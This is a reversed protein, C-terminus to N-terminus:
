NAKHTALKNDENSKPNTLTQAIISIHEQNLAAYFGKFYSPHYVRFGVTDGNISKLAAFSRYSINEVPVLKYQPFNFLIDQDREPGTFFLMLDPKIIAIEHPIVNFFAREIKRVESSVGVEEKARGIKNINNWLTAVSKEELEKTQKLKKLTYKIGSRFSSRASLKGKAKDFYKMDNIHFYRQYGTISNDIDAELINNAGWGRTEQGFIMITYDAASLKNEDVYLLLPSCFDPNNLGNLQLSLEKWHMRYLNQLLQNKDYM